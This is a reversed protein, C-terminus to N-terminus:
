VNRLNLTCQIATRIAAILSAPDAAAAHAAIDFATGHLPSTRVFPLGYTLNVGSRSHTLKLAILAQDHYLAIVADYKGERAQLIAADAALPGALDRIGKKLSVLAPRILRNEEEGLLGNDSAHPNLGCVVLRAKRIGFLQILACQTQKITRCLVRRSLKLPVQRLSIHRTVLGFRLYRNLLLMLPERKVKLRQALYETHGQYLFGALNIAEKSIPCTVLCDIEQNRALELATELYAISARGYEASVKGFRFSKPCVNALDILRYGTARLRYGAAKELVRRDGVVVFEALGKLRRLAKLTIIPGIGAPDGITIGVKLRPNM